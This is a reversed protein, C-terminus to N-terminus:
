VSRSHWPQFAVGIALQQSCGLRDGAAPGPLSVGLHRALDAVADPRKGDSDVAECMTRAIQRKGHAHVALGLGLPGAAGEGQGPQGHRREAAQGFGLSLFPSRGPLRPLVAPQHEGAVEAGGQIGPVDPLHEFAGAGRCPIPSPQVGRSSRVENTLKILWRPTEM